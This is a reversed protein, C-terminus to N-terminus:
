LNRRAIVLRPLFLGYFPTVGFPRIAPLLVFGVRYIALQGLSGIILRYLIPLALHLPLTIAAAIRLLRDSLRNSLWYGISYVFFASGPVFLAVLESGMLLAPLERVRIWQILVLNCGGLALILGARWGPLAPLKARFIM